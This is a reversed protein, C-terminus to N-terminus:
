LDRRVAPHIGGQLAVASALDTGRQAPQTGDEEGLGMRRVRADESNVVWGSLFNWIRLM